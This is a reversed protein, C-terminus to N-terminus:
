FTTWVVRPRGTLDDRHEAGELVSAQRADGIEVALSGGPRLWRPAQAAIKILIEDGRPGAFLAVAPEARVDAPLLTGAPVYPPNSVILDLTGMRETDLADFLDGSRLDLDVGVTRANDRAYALAEDSLDTAIVHADRRRTAIALAIAGCGCGIDVVVPDRTGGLLELAVDVLTETEPRPVLVGPGCSLELGSFVTTGIIYALPEGRARRRVFDRFVVDDIPEDARAWLDGWRVGLAAAMLREADQRPSAIWPRQLEATAERLRLRLPVTDAQTTM